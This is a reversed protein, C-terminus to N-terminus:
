TRDWRLLSGIPSAGGILTRGEGLPSPNALPARESSFPIPGRVPAECRRFALSKVWGRASVNLCQGLKSPPSHGESVTTRFNRVPPELIVAARPILPLSAESPALPAGQNGPSARSSPLYPSCPLGQGPNEPWSRCLSKQVVRRHPHGRSQGRSRCQEDSYEQQRYPDTDQRKYFPYVIM